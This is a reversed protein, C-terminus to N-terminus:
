TAPKELYTVDELGAFDADSTILSAQHVLATSYVISDAM